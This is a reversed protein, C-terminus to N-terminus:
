FNGAPSLHTLTKTWHVTTLRETALNSMSTRRILLFIVHLCHIVSHCSRGALLQVTKDSALHM